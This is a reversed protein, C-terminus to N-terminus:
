PAAAPPSPSPDYHRLPAALAVVVVHEAHRAVGVLALELAGEALERAPEVRVDVRPLVGLVVELLRVLGVRDQRIRARPGAVIAVAEGPDAPGVRRRTPPEAVHGLRDVLQEAVQDPAALRLA